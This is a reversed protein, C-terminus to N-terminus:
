IKIAVSMITKRMKENCVLPPRPPITPAEPLRIEKTLRRVHNPMRARLKIPRLQQTQAELQVSTKVQM